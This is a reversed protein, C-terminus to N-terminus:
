AHEHGGHMDHRGNNPITRRHVAGGWSGGVQIGGGQVSTAAHKMTFGDITVDSSAVWLWGQRTSAKSADGAPPHGLVIRRSGDIKFQGAAPTSTTSVQILATGDLFA